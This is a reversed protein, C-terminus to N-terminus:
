CKPAVPIVKKYKKGKCKPCKKEGPDYNTTGGFSSIFLLDEMTYPVTGTGNCESCKKRIM